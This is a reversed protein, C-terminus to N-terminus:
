IELELVKVRPNKLNLPKGRLVLESARLLKQVISPDSTHVSPNKIFFFYHFQFLSLTIARPALGPSDAVNHFLTICVGFVHVMKKLPKCFMTNVAPNRLTHGYRFIM